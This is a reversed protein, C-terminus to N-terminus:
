SNHNEVFITNIFVPGMKSQILFTMLHVFCNHKMKEIQTCYQIM